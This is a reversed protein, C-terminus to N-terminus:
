QESGSPRKPQQPSLDEGRDFRGEMKKMEDALGALESKEIMGDSNKDLRALREKAQEPLDALAVKGDGDKDFQAFMQRIREGPGSSSETGVGSGGASGVLNKLEALESKEIVGDKNKDLQAIRARFEPPIDAIAVKGDGDKDLDKMVQRARELMRAPNAMENFQGEKLEDQDLIKDNNKDFKALNERIPAPLDALVIKGDKGFRELLMKRRDADQNGTGPAQKEKNSSERSSEKNTDPRNPRDGPKRGEDRGSNPRGREAMAKMGETAESKDIKGDGNKDAKGMRAWFEAPAESEEIVGDGNKDMRSFMRELMEGREQAGLSYTGIQTAFVFLLALKKM